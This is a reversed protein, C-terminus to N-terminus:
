VCVRVCTCVCTCVCVCVHVCVCVCVCVCVHVCVCVRVCVPPECLSVSYAGPGPVANQPTRFRPERAYIEGQKGAKTLSSRTYYEGPGSLCVCVCACLVCACVSLHVCVCVCVGLPLLLCNLCHWVFVTHQRIMYLMDLHACALSTAHLPIYTCWQRHTHTHIHTHTHTHTRAHTRAHMHAHTHTHTHAPTHVTGPNGEYPEEM